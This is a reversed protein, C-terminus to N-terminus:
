LDFEGDCVDHPFCLLENAGVEGVLQEVGLEMCCLTPQPPKRIHVTHSGVLRGSHWGNDSPPRQCKELSSM